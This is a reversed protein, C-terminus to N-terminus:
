KMPWRKLAEPSWRLTEAPTDEPFGWLWLRTRAFPAPLPSALAGSQFLALIEQDPLIGTQRM